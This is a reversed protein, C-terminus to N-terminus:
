ERGLEEERARRLLEIDTHPERGLAERYARSVIYISLASVRVVENGALEKDVEAIANVVERVDSESVRLNKLTKDTKELGARKILEDIIARRIIDSTIMVDLDSTYISATVNSDYMEKVIRAFMKVSEMDYGM